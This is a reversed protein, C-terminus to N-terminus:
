KHYWLCLLRLSGSGQIMERIRLVREHGTNACYKLSCGGTMPEFRQAEDWRRGGPRSLHRRGVNHSILSINGGTTKFAVDLMCVGPDCTILSGLGRKIDVGKAISPSYKPCLKERVGGRTQIRQWLLVTIIEIAVPYTQTKISRRSLHIRRPKGAAAPNEKQPAKLSGIVGCKWTSWHSKIDQFISHSKPAKGSLQIKNHWHIKVHNDHKM